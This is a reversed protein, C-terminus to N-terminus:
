GVHNLVLQVLKPRGARMQTKVTGLPLGLRAAIQPQSLGEFYALLLVRRQKDPLAALAESVIRGQESRIVNECADSFHWQPAERQSEVAARHRAALVRVRDIARSRALIVLWTFPRGRTEDFDAARLWVELFVEQLVDEAEPHSRLTRLLLGFLKPSYRDYLAAFAQDDGLAVRRILEADSPQLDSSDPTM